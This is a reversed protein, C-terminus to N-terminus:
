WRSCRACPPAPHGRVQRTSSSPRAPVSAAAPSAAGANKDLTGASHQVPRPPRRAPDNPCSDRPGAWGASRICVGSFRWIAPAVGFSIVDALSDFEV